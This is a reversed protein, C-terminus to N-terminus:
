LAKECYNQEFVEAPVPKSFYYGQVSGCNIQNLFELQEKTEIGEAVVEINLDNAMLVINSVIKKGRESNISEKFFNKDIKLVDVLVDQLMNLSSYGAGFDDMAVKFGFWHLQEIISILASEEEFFARETIELEILSPSIQYKDLIAMLEQVYNNQYLCSRSQNVSIPLVQMNSDQWERLKKCACEVMYMDLKVIFGNKEFLPIFNDPMIMGKVPSIWRVLAEASHVQQTKAFCKPQLFLKMEGDALASQMTNEIEQEAILQNIIESNYFYVTASHLGKIKSLAMRAKDGMPSISMAKNEIFFAGFGVSLKHPVDKEFHFESIKEVVKMMRRELEEKGTYTSLIHFNDADFRSCVENEDSEKCLIDAIFCLLRDGESFGFIDNIVKFRNVNLIIYAYNGPHTDLIHRAEREFHNRNSIGTLSDYFALKQLEEKSNQQLRQIYLWILVMLLLLISVIVAYLITVNKLMSNLQSDLVESSTISFVYWHNIGLPRYSVYMQNGDMTLQVTGDKMERIHKTIQGYSAEFNEQFFKLINDGNYVLSDIEPRSIVGGNMDVIYSYGLGDFSTMKFVNELYKTEYTCTLLAIVEEGRYIPVTLLIVTRAPDVVAKRPGTVSSLGQFGKIVYEDKSANGSNKSDHTIFSGDPFTIACRLFDYSDVTKRMMSLVKESYLDEESLYASLMHMMEFQDSIRSYISAANNASLESLRDYIDAVYKKELVTRFHNISYLILIVATVAALIIGRPMSKKM